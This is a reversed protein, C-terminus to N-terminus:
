SVIGVFEQVMDAWTAGPRALIRVSPYWLSGGHGDDRWYHFPPQGQYMLYTPKGLAGAMHATASCTTLIIDCQSIASLIDDDTSFPTVAELCPVPDCRHEDGYQLSVCKFADMVLQLDSVHASKKEGFWGRAAPQNSRWSIGIVPRSGAFSLTDKFAKLHVSQHPQGAFGAVDKRVYQAISGLPIHRDYPGRAGCQPYWHAIRPMDLGVTVDCQECFDDLLTALLIQDGLGQEAWVLVKYGKGIDDETFRRMEGYARMKTVPPRTFFRNECLPWGDSFEKRHLHVTGLHNAAMAHRSPDHGFVLIRNADQAYRLADDLNGAEQWCMSMNVLADINTPEYQLAFQLAEFAAPLNGMQYQCVGLNSWANANKADCELARAAYGAAAQPMGDLLLRAAQDNYLATYTM